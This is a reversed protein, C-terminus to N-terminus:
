WKGEQLTDQGGNGDYFTDQGEDGRMWHIKDVVERGGIYRNVVEGGGICKIWWRGEDLTDQGGDGRRWYIKGTM